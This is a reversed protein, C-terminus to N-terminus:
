ERLMEFGLVHEEGYEERHTGQFRFVEDLQEFDHRFDCEACTVSSVMWRESLLWRRAATECQDNVLVIM